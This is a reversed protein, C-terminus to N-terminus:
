SHEQPRKDNQPSQLSRGKRRVQQLLSTLMRKVRAVTQAHGEHLQAPLIDADRAALLLYETEHSSALAISLYRGFSAQSESGAGEAINAASYLSARRVQSGVIRAASSQDFASQRLLAVALGHAERWVELRAYPFM